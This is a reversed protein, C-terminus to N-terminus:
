EGRNYNHYSLSNYKRRLLLANLRHLKAQKLPLIINKGEVSIYREPYLQSFYYGYTEYESFSSAENPDIVQLIREHWKMGGAREEIKAILENLVETDFLMYNVIYSMRQRAPFYGLLKEYTVFYPKHYQIGCHFVTKDNKMLEVARLFITDADVVAYYRHQTHKGIAWKLFQQYYWSTRYENGVVIRPMLSLPPCGTISKEDLLEVGLNIIEREADKTAPTVVVVRNPRPRFYRLISKVCLELFPFDKPHCPVFVDIM